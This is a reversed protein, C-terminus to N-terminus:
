NKTVFVVIVSFEIQCRLLLSDHNLSLTFSPQAIQASFGKSGYNRYDIYSSQPLKGMYYYGM